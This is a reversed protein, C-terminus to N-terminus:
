KKKSRLDSGWDSIKISTVCGLDDFFQDLDYNCILLNLDTPRQTKSCLLTHFTVIKAFTM